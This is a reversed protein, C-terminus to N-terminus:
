ILRPKISRNLVQRSRNQGEEILPSVRKRDPLTSNNVMNGSFIVCDEDEDEGYSRFRHTKKDEILSVLKRHKDAITMALDYSKELHLRDVLDLARELKGSQVISVFM